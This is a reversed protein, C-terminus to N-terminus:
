ARTALTVFPGQTSGAKPTFVSPWWPQGDARMVFRFATQDVDFKFHISSAYQIGAGAGRKQGVLYESFDALIIDGVTGLASCHESFILPRGMLTGYPAGSVGTAPLYAPAGGTGVPITMLGLQPFCDNNCIFISKALSASPMRSWMKLINEIVITAAIQGAEKAQNVTCAAGIIGRPQGAGTGRIIARDMKWGITDGAKVGLLPEMSVISDEILEDSSYILMVLKNLRMTIEGFKPKTATKAALEDKWYAQMAGHLYTTHTFDQIYPMHIENIAMPIKTCRQLFNSNTFGRELMTRSYEPPTLFGGQEPDGIELTPTGAAKTDGDADKGAGVSLGEKIVDNYARASSFWKEFNRSPEAGHQTALYVDKLFDTFLDYGGTPDLGKWASDNPSLDDAGGKGPLQALKDFEASLATQLEDTKVMPKVAENIEDKLDSLKVFDQGMIKSDVMEAILHKLDDVTFERKEDKNPEPPL